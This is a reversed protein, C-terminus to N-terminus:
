HVFEQHICARFHNGFLKGLNGLSGSCTNHVSFSHDSFVNLPEKFSFLAIADGFHIIFM